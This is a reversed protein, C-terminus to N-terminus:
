FCCTEPACWYFASLIDEDLSLTFLVFWTLIHNLTCTQGYSEDSPALNLWPWLQNQKVASHFFYGFSISLACRMERELMRNDPKEFSLSGLVPQSNPRSANRFNGWFMAACSSIDSAVNTFRTEKKSFNASKRQYALPKTTQQKTPANSQEEETRQAFGRDCYSTSNPTKCFDVVERAM